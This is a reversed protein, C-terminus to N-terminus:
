VLSLYLEKTQEACTEWSFQQVRKSGQLILTERKETSFLVNEMANAISEPKYPNFLEAAEGAVEPLSSTNSCVVPCQVAMAELLPIGFGEYLSPYVFIAANHYYNALSIDDGSIQVVEGEKIGLKEMNDREQVSFKGGGFCIIQFNKRLQASSVYAQLLRTFNKYGGREGVYFIYPKLPSTERDIKRWNMGSSYGLYIVSIKSAEIDFIERLDKKTHESICIIRDARQIAQKKILSTNDKVQFIDRHKFFESQREHTMDHVTLVVKADKTILRKQSYYTEHIIDPNKINLWQQSIKYNFFGLMQHYKHRPLYPVPFGFVLGPKSKKLYENVYAGALINVSINEQKDLNQALEYIYRSIGGYRQWSFIQYDYCVKLM